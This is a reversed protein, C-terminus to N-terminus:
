CFEKRGGRETGEAGNREKREPRVRSGGTQVRAGSAGCRWTGEEGEKGEKTTGKGEKM